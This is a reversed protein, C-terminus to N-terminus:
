WLKAAAELVAPLVHSAHRDGKIGAVLCFKELKELFESPNQHDKYKNFKPLKINGCKWLTLQAPDTVAQLANMRTNRLPDRVTAAVRKRDLPTGETLSLLQVIISPPTAQNRTQTPM